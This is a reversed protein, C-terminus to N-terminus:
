EAVPGPRSHCAMRLVLAGVGSGDERALEASLAFAEAVPRTWRPGLTLLFVSLGCDSSLLEEGSNHLRLQFRDERAAVDAAQPAAEGGSLTM